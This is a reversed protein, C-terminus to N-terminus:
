LTVSHSSGQLFNPVPVSTPCACRHLEAIGEWAGGVQMKILRQAGVLVAKRRAADDGTLDKGQQRLQALKAETVRELEALRGGLRQLEEDLRAMM